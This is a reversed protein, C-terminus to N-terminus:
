NVERFGKPAKDFSRIGNKVKILDLYLQDMVDFQVFYPEGSPRTYYDPTKKPMKVWYEKIFAVRDAETNHLSFGDDRVSVGWGPENESEEWKQCIVTPM